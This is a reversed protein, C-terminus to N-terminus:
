TQAQIWGEANMTITVNAGSGSFPFGGAPSTTDIFALPINAADAGVHQYLIAAQCQRTGAGLTAFTIVTPSSQGEARNNPADEVVVEGVLPQRAYSAGNYEDLTTFGSITNADRETDASTNTM